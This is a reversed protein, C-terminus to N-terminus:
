EQPDAPTWLPALDLEVADFPEARVREDGAHSGVLLWRSGELRLVELTRAGPSVLWVHGVKARAYLALKTTRDESETSPSLVECIWDPVLPIPGRRPVDVWRERRWGALDPVRVDEGFRIRPEDLILWGGPGGIGFGFPAGIVVGLGSAAQTHPLDPRPTALIEGDVIEGVVDEPLADLDEWTAARASARPM